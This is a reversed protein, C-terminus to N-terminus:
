TLIAQLVNPIQPLQPILESILPQLYITFLMIGFAFIALSAIIQVLLFTSWFKLAGFFSITVLKIEKQKEESLLKGLNGKQSADDLFFKRQM